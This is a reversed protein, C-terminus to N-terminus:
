KEISAELELMKRKLSTGGAASFGGIKGNSCIVRHCPIILPLSNRALAGGVARIAEPRGVKKALLAYTSTQGPKIKRCARLVAATFPSLLRLDVRVDSFGDACSGEYYARIRKQLQSFYKNDFGAQGLDALLNQVVRNCNALPLHTRILQNDTGALGFHGWDTSFVVYKVQM